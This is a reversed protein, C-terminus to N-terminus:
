VFNRSGRPRGPGPKWWGRAQNAPLGYRLRWTRIGRKTACVEDAIIRDNYGNEHLLFREIHDDVYRPVCGAFARGIQEITLGAEYAYRYKELTTM